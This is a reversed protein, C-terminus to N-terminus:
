GTLEHLKAEADIDLQPRLDLGALQSAAMESLQKKLRPLNKTPLVFGAAQSHGGFQSLLQRCQNLALIINFEPISRCSGSSTLEGMRIVIAPRYFEEVLEYILGVEPYGELGRVALVDPEEHGYGSHVVVCGEEDEGLYSVYM